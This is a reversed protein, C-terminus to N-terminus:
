SFCFACTVVSLASRVTTSALASDSVFARWIQTPRTTTTAGNRNQKSSSNPRAQSNRCTHLHFVRIRWRRCGFRRCAMFHRAWIAPVKQRSIGFAAISAIPHATCCLGRFALGAVSDCYHETDHGTQSVDILSVNQRTKEPHKARDRDANKNEKSRERRGSPSEAKKEEIEGRHHKM